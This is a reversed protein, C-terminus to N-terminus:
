FRHKWGSDRPSDKVVEGEGELAKPLAAPGPSSGKPVERSAAARTWHASELLGM